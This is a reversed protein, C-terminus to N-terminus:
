FEDKWARIAAFTQTKGSPAKGLFKEASALLSIQDCRLFPNTKLELGITSPLTIRQDARLENVQAARKVLNANDPECALAFRLNAQTYEHTCYVETAEPLSALKELSELMQEPTGEFLRGCGGAFLTDGCFLQPVAAAPSTQSNLYAIHDLTHGPVDIVKLTSGLIELTDGESVPRTIGSIRSNAPGYVPCSYRETLEAIGGTHDPHHHTILLAALTCNERKLYDIVPQPDGPDVACVKNASDRLLWIYNDNFAPLATITEIM